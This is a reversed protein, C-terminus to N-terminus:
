KSKENFQRLVEATSPSALKLFAPRTCFDLRLWAREIGPRPLLKANNPLDVKFHLVNIHKDQDDNIIQVPAVVKEYIKAPDVGLDHYFNFTIAYSFTEGHIIRGDPFHWPGGSADRVLLVSLPNPRFIIAALRWEIMFLPQDIKPM